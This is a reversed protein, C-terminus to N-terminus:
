VPLYGQQNMFNHVLFGDIKDTKLRQFASAVAQEPSAGGFPTKTVLFLKDRIGLEAALDGIVAESSGYAAATDMVKGGLEVFREMTDRLPARQEETQVGYRNTGIGVPPIQEGSSPITKLILDTSQAFLSPAGLAAAVGAGAKMADRRTIPMAFSGGVSRL